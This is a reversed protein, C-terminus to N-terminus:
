IVLIVSPSFVCMLITEILNILILLLFFWLFIKLRRGREGFRKCDSNAKSMFALYLCLLFLLCLQCPLVILIANIIGSLGFGSCLGALNFGLLYGRFGIILVAIPMTFTVISFGFGLGMIILISFTRSFFTTIGTKVGSYGLLYEDGPFSSPMTVFVVIGAIFCLLVIALITITRGRTQALQSSINVKARSFLSRTKYSQM